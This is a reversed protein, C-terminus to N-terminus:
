HFHTHALNALADITAVLLCLIGGLRSKFYIADESEWAGSLWYLSPPLTKLFRSWKRAGLLFVLGITGVLLEFALHDQWTM